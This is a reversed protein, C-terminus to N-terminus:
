KERSDDDDRDRDDGDGMVGIVGDGSVDCM